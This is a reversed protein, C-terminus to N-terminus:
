TIRPLLRPLEQHTHRLPIQLYQQRQQWLQSDILIDHRRSRSDPSVDGAMARLARLQIASANANALRECDIQDLDGRRTASSDNDDLIYSRLRPQAAFAHELVTRVSQGPVTQVPCDLYRQLNATFAVRAM